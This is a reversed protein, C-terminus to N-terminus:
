DNGVRKLSEKLKLKSKSKLKLKMRELQVLSRRLELWLPSYSPYSVCSLEVVRLVMPIWESTKREREGEM